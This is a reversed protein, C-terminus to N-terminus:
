MRVTNAVTYMPLTSHVFAAFSVQSSEIRLSNAGAAATRRVMMLCRMRSRSREADM